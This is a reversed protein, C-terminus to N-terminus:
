ESFVLTTKRGLLREMPHPRLVMAEGRAIAQDLPLQEYQVLYAMWLYVARIGYGCHILIRGDNDALVEALKRVAEPSYPFDDGGMPIAVYSMGLDHVVSEEDFPVTERDDNEEPTRVNVVVTVGRDELEALASENPQGAIYIRGDLFLGGASVGDITEIKQPAEWSPPAECDDECRGPISLTSFIAFLVVAAQRFTM